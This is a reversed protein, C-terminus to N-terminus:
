ETQLTDGQDETQLQIGESSTADANSLISLYSNFFLTALNDTIPQLWWYPMMFVVMLAVSWYILGDRFASGFKTQLEFRVGRWGRGKLLAQIEAVARMCVTMPPDAAAFLSLILCDLM